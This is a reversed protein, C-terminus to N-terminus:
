GFLYHLVQRHITERDATGDLVIYNNETVQARYHRFRQKAIQPPDPFPENKGQQRKIYEKQPLDILFQFDPTPAVAKLLRALPRNDTDLDPFRLRLDLMGDELYRDCIVTRGALSLARVKLAYQYISDLLAVAVWTPKVGARSFAKERQRPTKSTPLVGPKLRRVAARLFDLEKSYGPRLWFVLPKHGRTELATRLMEIQTSKGSCDVGSFTVIM